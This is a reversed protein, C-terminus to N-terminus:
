SRHHLSVASLLNLSSTSAYRRDDLDRTYEDWCIVSPQMALSEALSLLKKDSKPLNAILTNETKVEAGFMCQVLYTRMQTRWARFSPVDTSAWRPEKAALAFDLIQKPTLNGPFNVNHDTFIATSRHEKAASQEISGYWIEGTLSNYGGRGGALVGLLGNCASPQGIVLLMEGPQVCGNSRDIATASSGFSPFHQRIKRPCFQTLVNKCISTDAGSVRVSLDHWTVGLRIGFDSLQLSDITICEQTGDLDAVTCEGHTSNTYVRALKMLAGVFDLSCAM